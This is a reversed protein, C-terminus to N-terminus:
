KVRRRDISRRAYRTYTGRATSRKKEPRDIKGCMSDCSKETTRHSTYTRRIRTGNGDACVACINRSASTDTISQSARFRSVCKRRMSAGAGLTSLTSHRKLTHQASVCSTCWSWGGKGMGSFSAGGTSQWVELILGRERQWCRSTKSASRRM